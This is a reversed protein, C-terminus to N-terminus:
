ESYEIVFNSNSGSFNTTDGESKKYYLGIINGGKKDLFRLDSEDGNLVRRNEYDKPLEKSAFVYSVNFGHKFAVLCDAENTGSRSFTLDYNAPLPRKLRAVIKTYDYFTVEPFWEMINKGDIKLSEWVIDTTGNLRIALKDHKKSLEYIEKRLLHLFLTKDRLYFHAKNMRAKKVNSMRGRGSTYLCAEKCEKSAFPCLNIGDENADAPAMYLIYTVWGEQEGKITKPNDKSLLNKPVYFEGRYKM